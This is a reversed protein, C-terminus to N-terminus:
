KGRVAVREERERKGGHGDEEGIDETRKSAGEFMLYLLEHYAAASTLGERRVLEKKRVNASLLLYVNM